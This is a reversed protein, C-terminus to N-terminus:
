QSNYWHSDSGLNSSMEVTHRTGCSLGDTVYMYGKEKFPTDLGLPKSKLKQSDPDQNLWNKHNQFNYLHDAGHLSVRKKLHQTAM